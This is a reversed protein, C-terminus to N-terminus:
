NPLNSHSAFLFELIRCMDRTVFLMASMRCQFINLMFLMKFQEVSQEVQIDISERRCLHELAPGPKLVCSGYNKVGDGDRM